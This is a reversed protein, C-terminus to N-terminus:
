RRSPRGNTLVDEIKRLIEWQKPSFNIGAGFEEYRKAQDAMFNKEWDNLKEEEAHCREILDSLFSEQEATIAM